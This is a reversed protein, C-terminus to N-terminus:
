WDMPPPTAKDVVARPRLITCHEKRRLEAETPPTMIPDPPPTKFLVIGEPDSRTPKAVPLGPLWIADQSLEKYHMIVSKNDAGRHLWFQHVSHVEEPNSATAAELPSYEDTPLLAQLPMPWPIFMFTAAGSHSSSFAMGHLSNRNGTRKHTSTSSCLCVISTFHASM